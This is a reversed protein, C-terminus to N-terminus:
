ISSSMRASASGETIKVKIRAENSANLDKEVKVEAMSYGEENYYKTLYYEMDKLKQESVVEGKVIPIKAKLDSESINDNGVIEVRDIRPLEEVSIVLYVDKGIKKDINIAIDSFLGLNWLKRIADRTEDSPIGIEQNIQLGSYNIITKKDYIKNGTTSIDIIRYIVPEDQSYIEAPKIFYFLSILLLNTILIVTKNNLIM